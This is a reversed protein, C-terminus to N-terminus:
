TAQLHCPGLQHLTIMVQPLSRCCFAFSVQTCWPLSSLWELYSMGHALHWEAM